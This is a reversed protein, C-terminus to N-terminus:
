KKCKNKMALESSASAPSSRIQRLFERLYPSTASEVIDLLQDDTNFLHESLKHIDLRVEEESDVPGDNILEEISRSSQFVIPEETDNNNFVQLPVVTDVVESAMNAEDALVVVMGTNDLSVEPPVDLLVGDNDEVMNDQSVEPPVDPRVVNSNEKVTDDQSVESPVEPPVGDSSDEVM